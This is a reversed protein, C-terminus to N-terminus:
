GHGQAQPLRAADCCLTCDVRLHGRRSLPVICIADNINRLTERVCRARLLRASARNLAAPRHGFRIKVPVLARNDPPGSNPMAAIKDVVDMGSTVNGFIAYRGSKPLQGSLDTLVIFFQSGQSDPVPSGDQHAPRAMAVIGRLYDGVVPDDKITYGPGGTGDGAPDGGQIVFDPVIRHFTTGDYYGAESLNIFNEAAVPSSETYLAIVIDGKGTHLTATTGDGDPQSPPNALPTADPPGLPRGSGPSRLRGPGPRPRPM